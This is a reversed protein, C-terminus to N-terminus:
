FGLYTNSGLSSSADGLIWVGSGVDPAPALTWKCTLTGARFRHSVANVFWSRATTIGTQQEAFAVRAGPNVDLAALMLADSNNALFECGRPPAQSPNKLLALLYDGIAGAEILTSAYPVDVDRPRRQRNASAMDIRELAPADRRYLATGRVQFVPSRLYVQRTNNNTIIARFGGGGLEVSVALGSTLVDGTGDGSWAKYDTGAVPTIPTVGGIPSKSEAPDRYAGQFVVYEGTGLQQGVDPAEWLVVTSGSPEKPQFRVRVVNVVDADDTPAEFGQMTNSLTASVTTLTQRKSRGEFVVSGDLKCYAGPGFESQCGRALESLLKQEGHDCSYAFTSSGASISVGPPCIGRAQDVVIGFHYDSAKATQVGLKTSLDIDAAAHLWDACTVLARKEKNAGAQPDVGIVTGRFVTRPTGSYTVVLKVPIGRRWGSLVNAHGPTYGGHTGGSASTANNVTFQLTGPRGTLDFPTTGDIGIGETQIDDVQWVHPTIETWATSGQLFTPLSGQENRAIAVSSLTGIFGGAGDNFMGIRLDGTTLAPNTTAAVLAGSTSGGISIWANVLDYHCVIWRGVNDSVSGRSFNFVSVGGVKLSFVIAGNQLAVYWGNGSSNTECKQIIARLTADNTSTKLYFAVSFPGSALSLTRAVGDGPLFFGAGDNPVLVYGSGNFTAGMMPEPYDILVAPTTGSGSWTGDNRGGLSWDYATPAKTECLPWWGVGNDQLSLNERYGGNAFLGASLALTFAVGM